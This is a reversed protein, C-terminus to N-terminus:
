GNNHKNKNRDVIEVYFKKVKEYDDTGLLTMIKRVKIEDAEGFIWGWIEM